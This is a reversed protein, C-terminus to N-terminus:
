PQTAEIEPKKPPFIFDAPSAELREAIRLLVGSLRRADVAFQTIEPLASQTFNSIAPRNEAVMENLTGTLQEVNGVAGKIDAVLLPLDEQTVGEVDALIAEIRGMSQRLLVLSQGIDGEHAAVTGTVSKVDALTGSIAAINDDSFLKNAQRLVQIGQDVLKSASQVVSQLGTTEAPIVPYQEGAAVTLPVPPKGDPAEKNLIQVYSIGTLLQVELTAKSDTNIPTGQYVRVTVKIRVGTRDDFRIDEVNGVLIGNLRVPAGKSLGTVATEYYITYTEYQRDVDAEAAWYIFAILAGIMMLVFSGILVHHARTEM